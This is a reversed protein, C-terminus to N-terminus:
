PLRCSTKLHPLIKEATNRPGALTVGNTLSAGTFGLLARTILLGDVLASVTGDGDVDLSCLAGVFAVPASVNIMYTCTESVPNGSSTSSVVPIIIAGPAITATFRKPNTTNQYSTASAPAMPSMGIAGLLNLEPNAASYSGTYAALTLTGGSCAPNPLLGFTFEVCQSETSLNRFAHLNGTAGYNGATGFLGPSVGTTACTTSASDASLQLRNPQTSQPTGTFVSVAQYITAMIPSASVAFTCPTPPAGSTISSVVIVVPSNAAVPATFRFTQNDVSLSSLGPEGILNLLPNAPDYSPSYAAFYLLSNTTCGTLLSLKFEHCLAQPFPNTFGLTSGTTLYTGVTQLLSPSYPAGCTTAAIAGGRNLRLTQTAPFTSASGSVTQFYIPAAGGQAYVLDSGILLSVFFLIAAKM